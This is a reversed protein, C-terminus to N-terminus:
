VYSIIETVAADLSPLKDIKLDVGTEIASNIRNWISPTNKIKEIFKNLKILAPYSQGKIVYCIILPETSKRLIFHDQFKIRDISESFIESGM